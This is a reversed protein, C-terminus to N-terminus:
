SADPAPLAPRRAFEILRREGKKDPIIALLPVKFAQLDRSSRVHRDIAELGFVAGVALLAALLLAAGTYQPIKPSSPTLPEAAPTLLVVNTQTAQSELTTQNYRKSVADYANQAADVDRQLVALQDRETKVKLLKRKQTEIAARLEVEKARGVTGSASFGATVANTESELRSRLADIELQMRRYQPHNVGLNGRSEQLKAEAKALETRLNQIVNSQQVEPLRQAVAGSREKGALDARASLVATLQVSLENLRVTEADFQEDRAVLGKEQQFASLRAQAKELNDRLGKGQEGFWRAYQKAPEVKLDIAADMYAQAFANAAAAAFASEGSRFEIMIINSDRRPPTVTMRKQLGMAVWEEIRVKGGTAERWQRTIAPNEDLKLIKVAKLAVRDSKIIDEQTAITSPTLLASIPDPSRVDVLLAATATYQKPLLYIVPLALLLTSVLVVCAVKYRAQLVLVFSLADMASPGLAPLTWGRIM